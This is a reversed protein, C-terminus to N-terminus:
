RTVVGIGKALLSGIYHLTETVLFQEYNMMTICVLGSGHECMSVIHSLNLCVKGGGELTFQFFIGM